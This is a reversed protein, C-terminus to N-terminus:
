AAKDMSPWLEERTKGTKSTVISVWKPQKKRIGKSAAQRTVGEEDALDSITYGVSLLAGRIVKLDDKTKM